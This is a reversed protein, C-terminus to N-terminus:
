TREISHWTPGGGPRRELQRIKLVIGAIVLIIVVLSVALGNRRFRLEGLAQVGAEYAKRAVALGQDVPPRVAAADFTHIALRAKILNSEADKLAFLPEGVEMGSREAQGLVAAARDDAQRLRDILGRMAAAAKGGADSPDHCSACVAPATAGLMQDSAQRIEHNQHCTPCGAVGMADFAPKHPSHLLNDAQMSHCQGCVNAVSTVGPPVAGHNGHCSNCTPASLDGVKSLTTWHVSKTYKAYQDTPIGYGAMYGADAHCRACTDAVRLPHVTSRGDSAPLISHATHCSSCVAVKADNQGFLRRGHVSTRYEALQDIRLQPNYRKMFEADSHCRACLAPVKQRTPVGIFGKARDMAEMGPAHPDGGHCDACTFGKAQHVDGAFDRAPKALREDGTALHCTVCTDTPPPAQASAGAPALAAPLAALLWALARWPSARRPRHSSLRARLLSAGLEEM